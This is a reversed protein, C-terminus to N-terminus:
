VNHRKENDKMVELVKNSKPTGVIVLNYSYKFSEIKKTNIIDPKNGTLNELNAAIAEASEIKMQSANEGIM